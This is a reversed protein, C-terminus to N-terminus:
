EFSADGTAGRTTQVAGHILQIILEDYTQGKKGIEKLLQRTTSEVLITSKSM